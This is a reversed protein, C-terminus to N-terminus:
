LAAEVVAAARAWNHTTEVRRRGAAGMAQLRDTDGLLEAIATAVADVSTGDVLMGTEGDVVADVEGGSSGAIVPRGWAAAELYVLGYGELEGEVTRRSPQVYVSCRQYEHALEESSLRGLFTVRAAVGEASALARLREFDPGSGVVRYAVHSPLCRLARIVMDIGKRPVLRCVSLLSTGGPPSTSPRPDAGYPVSVVRQRSVHWDDL